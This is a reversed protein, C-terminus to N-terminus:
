RKRIEPAPVPNEFVKARECTTTIKDIWAQRVTGHSFDQVFQIAEDNTECWETWYQSYPIGDNTVCWFEIILRYELITTTGAEDGGVEARRGKPKEYFGM